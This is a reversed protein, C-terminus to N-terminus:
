KHAEIQALQALIKTKYAEIQRTDESGSFWNEAIPIILIGFLCPLINLKKICNGQTLTKLIIM